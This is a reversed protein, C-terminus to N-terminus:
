DDFVNEACDACAWEKCNAKLMSEIEPVSLEEQCIPCKLKDSDTM